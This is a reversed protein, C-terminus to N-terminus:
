RAAMGTSQWYTMHWEGTIARVWINCYRNLIEKREGNVDAVMIAVGTALVADGLETFEVEDREISLYRTSGSALRDLFSDLDDQKGSSHVWRLRTDLLERLAETDGAIMAAVRKDEFANVILQNSM